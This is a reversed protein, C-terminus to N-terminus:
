IGLKKQIITQLISKRENDLKKKLRETRLVKELKVETTFLAPFRFQFQLNSSLYLKDILQFTEPIPTEFQTVLPIVKRNAGDKDQEMLLNRAIYACADSDDFRESIYFLLRSSNKIIDELVSFLDRGLPICEWLVKGVLDYQSCLSKQLETAEIQDEQSCIMCFDLQEEVDAPIENNLESEVDIVNLVAKSNEKLIEKIMDEITTRLKSSPWTAYTNCTDFDDELNQSAKDCETGSKQFKKFTKQLMESIHSLLSKKLISGNVAM